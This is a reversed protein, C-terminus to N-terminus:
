IKVSWDLGLADRQDRFHYSGTGQARAAFPAACVVAVALVLMVTATKAKPPRTM